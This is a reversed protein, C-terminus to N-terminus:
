WFYILKGFRTVSSPKWQYINEYRWVFSFLFIDVNYFEYRFCCYLKYIPCLYGAILRKLVYPANVRFGQSRPQPANSFHLSFHTHPSLPPPPGYICAICVAFGLLIWAHIKRGSLYSTLDCIESIDRVWLIVCNRYIKVQTCRLVLFLFYWSIM